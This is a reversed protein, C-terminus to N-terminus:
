PRCRRAIQETRLVRRIRSDPSVINVQPPAGCVAWHRASFTVDHRLAGIARPVGVICAGRLDHKPAHRAASPQSWDVIGDRTTAGVTVAVASRAGHPGLRSVGLRSATSTMAQRRRRWVRARCQARGAVTVDDVVVPAELLRLQVDVADDLQAGLAARL